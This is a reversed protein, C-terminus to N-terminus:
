KLGHKALFATSLRYCEEPKEIQILHGAGEVCSYDYGGERGLAQNAAATAPAGKM